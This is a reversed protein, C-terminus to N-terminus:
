SILTGKLLAPPRLQTELSGPASSNSELAWPQRQGWLQWAPVRHGPDRWKGLMNLLCSLSQHWHGINCDEGKPDGKQPQLNTTSGGPLHQTQYIDKRSCFKRFDPDSPKPQSGSCGWVYVFLCGKGQLTQLMFLCTVSLTFMIIQTKCSPSSLCLSIYEYTWPWPAPSCCFGPSFESRTDWYRLWLVTRGKSLDKHNYSYRYEVVTTPPLFGRNSHSSRSPM